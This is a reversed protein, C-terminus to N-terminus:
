PRAAQVHMWDYDRARGLSIWGAWGEDEWAQWFPVCDRQALRASTHNWRLQNREPDFDIAIGWSHMSWQTRSGRKLRVNLCGGFLDFGLDVRQEPSYAVAVRELARRASDACKKHISIREVKQDKDWALRMPYPLDLLTQNAGREGYFAPVEAETPWQAAAAPLTPSTMVVPDQDRWGEERARNNYVDLAYRTQPGMLGDIKGADIGDRACVLQKAALEARAPSWGPGYSSGLWSQVAARTLPGDIGDIKGSYHGLAALRRQLERRDM